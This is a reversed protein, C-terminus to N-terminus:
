AEVEGENPKEEEEEAEEPLKGVNGSHREGVDMFGM